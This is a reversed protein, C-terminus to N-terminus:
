SAFSIRLPSHDSPHRALHVVSIASVVNLCEENILLRDLRKCIRARGRRNNSWIFSSGSFGADFVGAEEMFM